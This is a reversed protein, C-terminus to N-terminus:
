DEYVPLYVTFTSGEGPASEVYIEGHHSKVIGYCISLGLGTGKIEPKTTYFPQFILDLKEPQIGTGNDKIAVAVRNEEQWTTITIVGGDRCAYAANNLLNLIVQKIQDSIALIQPLREAYNLMIFIKKKQFDSKCLLLVSDITAHMDMFVKEGSSPRNFDQLSRILNKMRNGESIALELLKRDDTELVLYKSFSQLIALVGQLPSNFEHAISASLNGIAMLKEAHLYKIQAEQLERTRREVRQELEENLTCLREEFQKRETIDETFIVIGGVDGSLLYWPRVEWHIWQVSGDPWERQDEEVGVVEGALGRRHAEKWREPIDLIEYHSLGFLDRGELNHDLLWRRSASLYRMDRDFMALAVPAHEIFLRLRQESEYLAKEVRKLETIDQVAVASGIIKGDTNYVPSASNLIYIETGDFREIRMMQGLTTQGKQVAIAAAWEEPAVLRDTDVWWAKYITYDDVSRTAPLPGGWIVEFARNTHVFGGSKDTIAVGTPLADMVAALLGKENGLQMNTAELEAAQRILQNNRQQLEENARHLRAESQRLAEEARKRDSIDHIISYVFTKGSSELKNSFVDVDRISGDARRHRFEFHCSESLVVRAIEAKIAEPPLVNIEDIRMQKLKEHPWGYFRVAAKNADIIQGTEADLIMIVASHQEFLKRFRNLRIFRGPPVGSTHM